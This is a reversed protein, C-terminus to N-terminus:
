EDEELPPVSKQYCLHTSYIEFNLAEVLYQMAANRSDMRLMAQSLGREKLLTMGELLVATGLGRRRYDPHTGLPDLWAVQRRTRANEAHSITCLCFAVSRGAPTEVLLDLTPEYEPLRMMALRQEVTMDQSGYAARHLEVLMEVEREDKVHRMYFGPPLEPPPVARRLSRSLTLWRQDSPAFGHAKMLEQCAPDDERCGSSLIGPEGQQRQIRQVCALGWDVVAQEIDPMEMRPDIEYLLDQQNDVMAFAVVQGLSDMWLCTNAQIEPLNLMARLDASTPYDTIREDPRANVLMDVMSQLDAAGSYLKRQYNSM